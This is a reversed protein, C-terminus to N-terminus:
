KSNYLISIPEMKPIITNTTNNINEKKKKNNNNNSKVVIDFTNIQNIKRPTTLMKQKLHFNIIDIKKLTKLKEEQQQQQQEVPAVVINPNHLTALNSDNEFIYDFLGNMEAWMFYSIQCYTTLINSGIFIKQGRRFPDFYHKTLARLQDTYSQYINVLIGNATLYVIPNKSAYNIVFYDLKRISPIEIIRGDTIEIKGGCNFIQILKMIKPNNNAWTLLRQKFIKAEYEKM